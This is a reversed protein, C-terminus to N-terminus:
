GTRQSKVVTEFVLLLRSSNISRKVPESVRKLKDVIEKCPCLSFDHLLIATAESITGVPQQREECQHLLM